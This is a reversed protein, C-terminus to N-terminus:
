SAGAPAPIRRRWRRSRQRWSEPTSATSRFAPPRVPAEADVREMALGLPTGDLVVGTRRIVFSILYPLGTEAMADAVGLAEEVNPATALHLFDVSTSALAAVQTRHFARAARRDLSDAPKYADGSPGVLGGVFIPPGEGFSDRLGTMFLANDENM